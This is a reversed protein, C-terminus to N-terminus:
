RLLILLILLTIKVGLPFESTKLPHPDDESKNYRKCRIDRKGVVM